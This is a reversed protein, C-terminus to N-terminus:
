RVAREAARIQARARAVVQERQRLADETPARRHTAARLTERVEELNIQSVPMASNTLVTVVDNVVQVFGGDVYYRTTQEGTKLRLEGYGLRGIMPAHSPAIGLEGDYLPVVVFDCQEDLLTEEPTVIVCNIKAM